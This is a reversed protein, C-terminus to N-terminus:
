AGFLSSFWKKINEIRRKIRSSTNTKSMRKTYELMGNVGYRIDPSNREHAGMDPANGSYAEMFNPIVVGADVGLSGNDLRFSGIMNDFDFSPAGGEYKPVSGNIGNEQNKLQRKNRQPFDGTLLDYDFDNNEGSNGSAISNFKKNKTSRVHFINNRSVCNKITRGKGKKDWRTGLGGSGEGNPQLITNNFFYMYGAMWDRNRATGMKAFAGFEGYKSNPPSYSRGTVNKWIYLPGITTPANGIHNYTEEIYNEWVRVNCNSGEVEIGDDWSNALYNGYIDSDPGPFGSYSANPGGGLIDSFYHDKKSWIQNYRIVNNGTRCKHLFIGVPGEPHYNGEAHSAYNIEAWSNSNTNPDHILNRQFTCHRVSNGRSSSYVSAIGAHNATGFGGKAIPKSTGWKSIDCDEIIIHECNDLYIGNKKGNILTFGRIIVYKVDKLEICNNQGNNKGDITIDTGDYLVYGDATGSKTISLYNTDLPISAVEGIPYNDSWTTAKFNIESSTNELRLKVEYATGPKLNVISGRYDASSVITTKDKVSTIPNYVMPYGDKWVSAGKEKYQIFVSKNLSGNLPSWYVSLCNYTSVTYPKQSFLTVNLM